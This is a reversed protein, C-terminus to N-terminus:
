PCTGWNALVAALDAANVLGDHNVDGTGAPTVAGWASLVVGLDGANVVNDLTVDALCDCVTASGEILFPGSVNRPTNSCISTGNALVCQDFNGIVRLGGVSGVSNNNIIQCNSIRLVGWTGGGLNGFMEVAAAGNGGNGTQITCNSLLVTGGATRAGVAKFGSAAGSGQLGAVNSTFTSNSVPGSSEFLQVGGGENRATNAVFQCGDVVTDSRYLYAGGGFDSVNSEFRCNKVYAASNAAYLGGGVRFSAGPFIFSGVTGNRLVLNEIGATAPEGGTFRVTSTKLGTGDLITANNPAGKVVVNKGNLAFPENYTGPAVTITRSTGAPVADIAAQITPYLGPVDFPVPELSVSLNLTGWANCWLCQSYCSPGCGSCNQTCSLGYPANVNADITYIGPPLEITGSGGTLTPKLNASVPGSLTAAARDYITGFCNVPTSTSSFTLRTAQTIEFTASTSKLVGNLGSGSGVFAFTNPTLTTWVANCSGQRRTTTFYVSCSWYGGNQGTEEVEACSLWNVAGTAIGSELTLVFPGATTSGCANTAVCTYVAGAHSSDVQTSYESQTAGSIPIGDRYWQYSVGTPAIRPRLKILEGVCAEVPTANTGLYPSGIAVQPGPTGLYLPNGIANGNAARAIVKWSGDFAPSSSVTWNPATSVAVLEATGPQEWLANGGVCPIFCLRTTASYLEYSAAGAVPSGQVSLSCQGMAQHTPILAALLLALSRAPRLGRTAM